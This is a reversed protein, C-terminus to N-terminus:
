DSDSENLVQMKAEILSLRRERYLQGIEAGIIFLTSTYFIWSSVVIVLIFAGYFNNNLLFASIYYDFVRRALEWLVTAWFASVLPVKKSMKEYPILYYAFFFIAFIVILSVASFIFDTFDSVRLFALMELRDSIRMLINTAPFMVTGLLVFFIVLLVGGMDRLFAVLLNKDKSIGFITNLITRLGSFLWTATFLLGFTGLYGAMSKFQIVGPIRSLIFKKTYTAFEPYPIITDILQNVQGEVTQINILNGLLFFLLLILPIMSVFISFSLGAAWLFIHHKDFTKYFGGVYHVLFQQVNQFSRSYLLKNIIRLLSIRSM